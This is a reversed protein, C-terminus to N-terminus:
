RSSVGRASAAVVPPGQPVLAASFCLASTSELLVPRGDIVVGGHDATWRVTACPHPVDGVTHRCGSVAFVDAATPVPRGDIRVASSAASASVVRGGHPCSIVSGGNVLNGSLVYSGTGDTRTSM